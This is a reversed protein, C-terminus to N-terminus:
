PATTVPASAADLPQPMRPRSPTGSTKGTARPSRPSCRATRTRSPGCTPPTRAVSSAESLTNTPAISARPEAQLRSPGAPAYDEPEELLPNVPRGPVLKGFASLDTDVSPRTGM